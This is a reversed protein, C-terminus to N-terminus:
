SDNSLSSMSSFSSMSSISDLDSLSDSDSDLTFKKKHKKHQKKNKENVIKKKTNGGVHEDPKVVPEGPNGDHEGPNGDHEVVPEDPNRDHEDPSGSEPSDPEGGTLLNNENAFIQLELYKSKYKLYKQLYTM